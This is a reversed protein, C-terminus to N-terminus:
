FAQLKKCNPTESIKGWARLNLEVRCNHTLVDRYDREVQAEVQERVRSGLPHEQHFSPSKVFYPVGRNHTSLEHLYPSQRELSYYSPQSMPFSTLAIVLFILVLHVIGTLNISQGGEPARAMGAPTRVFHQRQFNRGQGGFFFAQFIEDPDFHDDFFDNRRRRMGQQQHQHQALNRAEEPGYRDYREKLEANSLCQFARSVSKFAEEAGAAKNKDPHVKLSLKRYARRVDEESCEKGLGLIEYYDVTRNIRVVIEIQEPSPDSSATTSSATDKVESEHEGNRQSSSKSGGSSKRIDDEEGLGLKSALERVDLDEPRLRRAISVYKRARSKDGSEIAARAIQVCREAEGRNSEM